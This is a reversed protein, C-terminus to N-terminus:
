REFGSLQLGASPILYMKGDERTFAEIGQPMLQGKWEPDAELYPAVDVLRDNEVLLDYFAPEPGVQILAPLSNSANLMKLKSRYDDSAGALYEVEMQYKGKYERNFDEVVEKMQIDMADNAGTTIIIPIKVEGESEGAAQSESAAGKSDGTKEATDKGNGGGCGALMFATALSLIRMINKRKM